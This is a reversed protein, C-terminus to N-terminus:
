FEIFFDFFHIGDKTIEIADTYEGYRILRTSEYAKGCLFVGFTICLLIVLSIILSRFFLTKNRKM